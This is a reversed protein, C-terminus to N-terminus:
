RRSKFATRSRPEGRLRRGRHTVSDKQWFAGSHHREALCPSAPHRCARQFRNATTTYDNSFLINQKQNVKYKKNQSQCSSVHFSQFHSGDVLSCLPVSVESVCSTMKSFESQVESKRTSATIKESVTWAREACFKLM